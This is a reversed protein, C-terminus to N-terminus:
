LRKELAGPAGTSVWQRNLRESIKRIELEVLLIFNYIM